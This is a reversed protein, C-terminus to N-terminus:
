ILRKSEGPLGTRDGPFVWVGQETATEVEVSNGTETWWNRFQYLSVGGTGAEELLRCAQAQSKARVITRVQPNPLGLYRGM